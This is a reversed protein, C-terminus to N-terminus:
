LGRSCVLRIMTFNLAAVGAPRERQTRLLLLQSGPVAVVRIGHCRRLRVQSDELAHCPWVSVWRARHSKRPLLVGVQGQGGPVREKGLLRLFILDLTEKFQM